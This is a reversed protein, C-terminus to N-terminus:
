KADVVCRFGITACRDLGPWMQIFKTHSDCRHPGGTAYWGSGKANFYSGGRIICFRVHGDDRCSETWEYVNGSMHYCGYPSKGQPLSRVPLTRDGTTNCKDKDFKNGWPWKRGDTGQGALHWEYEAPLRKGAWKAYARADDMDVYVVPHDALEDPMKGNIWHKLFNEPHKPKYGTEVLFKKFEGNSVEAEDIFFPGLNVEFDHYLTREHTAGFLHDKWKNAPTGPDPYCGCERRMHEIHIPTKGGPVFVMNAPPNNRSIKRTPKVPDPDIVSHAFNRDKTMTHKQQKELLDLLPGDVKDKQIELVCGLGSFRKVSGSVCVKDGKRKPKIERGNWLDYYVMDPKYPREFLNGHYEPVRDKLFLTFVTCDDGPWRHIFLEPKHKKNKWKEKKLEQALATPYYPDWNDNNFNKKFHRLITTARKWLVRDEKRWPNYYGFVNEWVMMGSGGFFARRIEPRHSPEWRWIQWRMHRPEIWKRRDIGPTFREDEACTQIWSGNLSGLSSTPPSGEPCLSIGGPRIADFKKQMTESIGYMTDLFIGDVDTQAILESLFDEAPKSEPRTGTDWPNYDIFVKVGKEHCKAVLAKIGEIGGPMDRYFDIQNRQDIGLRPYAQWLLIIDYGGFEDQGDQLFSDIKYEGTQSDYFSKDYMFTFHCTYAGQMWQKSPEDYLSRDMPKLIAPSTTQAVKDTTEKDTLRLDISRIELQGPTPNKTADMGIIPRLWQKATDFVPVCCQTKVVHWKGDKPITVTALVESWGVAKDRFRLDNSHNYNNFAICLENNGSIARAEVTVALNDKPKLNLAKSLGYTLEIWARVGKYDIYILSDYGDRVNQRYKKVSRLWSERDQQPQPMFYHRIRRDWKDYHGDWKDYKIEAQPAQSTQPSVIYNDRWGHMLVDDMGLAFLQCDQRM